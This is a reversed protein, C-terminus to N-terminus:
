EGYAYAVANLLDHLENIICSPIHHYRVENATEKYLKCGQNEPKLLLMQKSIGLKKIFNQRGDKPHKL